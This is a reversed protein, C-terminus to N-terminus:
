GPQGWESASRRRRERNHEAGHRSVSTEPEQKGQQEQSGQHQRRLRRTSM